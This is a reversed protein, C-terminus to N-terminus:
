QHKNKFEHPLQTYFQELCAQVELLTPDRNLPKTIFIACDISIESLYGSLRIAERILRKLRNRTPAAGVRKSVSIVLRTYGISQHLYKFNLVGISRYTGKRFLLEIRKKQSLRHKKSFQYRVERKDRVWGEEGKEEETKLFPVGPNPRCGIAFVTNKRADAITPNFREKWAVGIKKIRNHSYDELNLLDLAKTLKFNQWWLCLVPKILIGKKIM